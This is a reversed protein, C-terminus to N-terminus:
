SLPICKDGASSLTTVGNCRCTQWSPANVSSCEDKNKKKVRAEDRGKKEKVIWIISRLSVYIAIAIEHIEFQPCFHCIWLALEDRDIKLWRTRELIKRAWFRVGVQRDWGNSDSLPTEIIPIDSPILLSVFVTVNHARVLSRPFLALRIRRTRRVSSREGEREREKERQGKAISWDSRFQVCSSVHLERGFVLRPVKVYSVMYPSFILRPFVGSFRAICGDLVSRSIM